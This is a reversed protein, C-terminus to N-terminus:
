CKQKSEECTTCKLGNTSNGCLKCTLSFTEFRGAKSYTYFIGLGVISVLGLLIFNMPISRDIKSFNNDCVINCDPIQNYSTSKWGFATGPILILGMLAFVLISKMSYNLTYSYLIIHTYLSCCM